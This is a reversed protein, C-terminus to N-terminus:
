AAPRAQRLAELYAGLTADLRHPLLLDFAESGGGAQHAQM